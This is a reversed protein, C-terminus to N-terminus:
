AKEVQVPKGLVSTEKPPTDADKKKWILNNAFVFRAITLIGLTVLNAILYHMEMSSVLWVYLPGRLLLMGNNVMLYGLFRNWFHRKESKREKFVWFEAGAFNWSSSGQTAIITSVLYHIGLLETFIALLGVNVILGSLGVLVFFIFKKHSILQLRLMQRFLLMAEATSAKSEGTHREAFEFPVEAVKLKPSRVLIELLIKFGEPSLKNTDVDTRKVLFFGTLPDTIKRLHSPFTIRSAIALGYSVLKRFLSLGETSGGKTLRSAAVLNANNARACDLLQPIVEPPHQLDGDMVCIWQSRAICMGEVVAKGLGNRREPPRAILVVDFPFQSNAEEIVKPTNDTSDDVFIVELSIGQTAKHLYYLLPKVNGSENRTPVIISLDRNSQVNLQSSVNHTM